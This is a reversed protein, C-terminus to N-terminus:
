RPRREGDRPHAEGGGPMADRANVVLNLVVQELQSPDARVQGLAADFVTLLEIDEGILRRLMKEMDSVLSNLDVIRPQLVQQRSFALLQRTLGGAREAAKLIQEVKAKLPDDDRMKRRVIEGYGMIVGLLNNFDHAVGGALRGIAEMKQSQIFQRELRMENTVDRKVAVYYVLRGSADRVPGITADEQFLTGDKRRNVMRGKWVEGRALTDWMRRYFAADQHGSKLIRPNRGIAEARSYGSIREFAPNVYIIAGQPNTIIISEAAQEVVREYERLREEARQRETIDLALGVLGEIRGGEGRLPSRSTLFTRPGNKSPLTLETERRADADLTAVDYRRIRDAIDAPFIDGATKGTAQDKPVGTFREWAENVLVYRHESDKVFVVAPMGDLISQLFQEKKRVDAAVGELESGDQALVLRAPRGKFVVDQTTIQVTLLTGNKRRHRRLAPGRLGTVRPATVDASLAPVDELPRIDAITMGLFEDQSFGYKAVAAENVELFQLTEPDFVWM